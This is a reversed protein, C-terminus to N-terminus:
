KIKLLADAIARCALVRNGTILDQKHIFEPEVIIATCNTRSLFYDPGFKKNMRYWGEMAGRWHKGFIPEMAGQVTQAVAKGRTSGPYHLTLAGNGVPRMEGEDVVGDANADKWVQLSNFHIEIAVAPRRANIFDIKSRLVGAPVLLAKDPGLRAYIEDVWRLAEDHECFGEFCAGLSTPHHGASILIM